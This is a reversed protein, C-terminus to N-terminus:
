RLEKLQRDFKKWSIFILVLTFGILIAMPELLELFSNGKIMIGRTIKLYYKAPVMYSIGQLIKPMSSVPSIFGSLMVTPLMTAMLAMMMAQMQTKSITSIMLGLSLATSVYVLSLLFFSIFSGIFVVKFLLVGLGLISLGIIMAIIIYPCLKGIIFEISQLPSVLLQELTGNEKERTISLSTLLASIMILILAILGPVFFFSSKLEPNFLRQMRIEINQAPMMNAMTQLIYDKIFSAQNPDSADVIIQINTLDKNILLVAKLEQKLFVQHIDDPHFSCDKVRYIDSGYFAKILEKSQETKAQDNIGLPIEKIETNLAYGFIILQLIPLILVIILSRSDRIIHFFEKKAIAFIRTNNIKM